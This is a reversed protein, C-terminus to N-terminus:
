RLRDFVRRWVVGVLVFLLAVLISALAHSRHDLHVAIAADLLWAGSCIYWIWYNALQSSDRKLSAVEPHHRL